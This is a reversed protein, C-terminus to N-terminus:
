RFPCFRAFHGQKGCSFCSQTRAMCPRRGHSAKGCSTCPPQPILTCESTRHTDSRCWYCRPPQSDNEASRMNIPNTGQDKTTKKNLAEQMMAEIRYSNMTDEPQHLSMKTQRVKRPVLGMAKQREVYREVAEVAQNLSTCHVACNLSAERYACGTLFRNVLEEEVFATPMGPFSEIALGRLRSAYDRFGEGERQNTNSFKAHTCLSSEMQSFRNSMAKMAQSLCRRTRGPLQDFYHLAKGELYMALVENAEDNSWGSNRKHRM